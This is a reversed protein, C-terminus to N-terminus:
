MKTAGLIRLCLRSYLSSHKALKATMPHYLVLIAVAMAIDAEVKVSGLSFNQCMFFAKGCRNTTDMVVSGVIEALLVQACTGQPVTM